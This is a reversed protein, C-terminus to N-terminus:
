PTAGIIEEVTSADNNARDRIRSAYQRAKEEVGAVLASLAEDPTKGIWRQGSPGAKGMITARSKSTASM